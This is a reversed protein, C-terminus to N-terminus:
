SIVLVLLYTESLGVPYFTNEYCVHLAGSLPWLGTREHPPEAPRTEGDGGERGGERVSRSLAPTWTM